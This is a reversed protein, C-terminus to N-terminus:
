FCWTSFSGWVLSNRFFGPPIKKCIWFFINESITYFILLAPRHVGVVVEWFYGEGGAGRSFFKRGHKILTERQNRNTWGGPIRRENRWQNFVKQFKPIPQLLSGFRERNAKLVSNVMKNPFILSLSNLLFRTHRAPARTSPSGSDIGDRSSISLRLQNAWDNM